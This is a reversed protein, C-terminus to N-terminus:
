KNTFVGSVLNTPYQIVIPNPAPPTSGNLKPAIYSSFLFQALTLGGVLKFIYTRVGDLKTETDTLRRNYENLKEAHVPCQLGSEPIANLKKDMKILTDLIKDIQVRFENKFDNMQVELKEVRYTLVEKNEMTTNEEKKWNENM